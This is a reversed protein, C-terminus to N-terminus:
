RYSRESFYARKHRRPPVWTPACAASVWPRVLPRVLRLGRLPRVLPACPPRVLCPPLHACLTQAGFPACPLSAPPRVLGPRLLACLAALCTPVCPEAVLPSCPVAAITARAPICKPRCLLRRGTGRERERGRGRAREREREARCGPSQGAGGSMPRVLGCPWQACLAAPGSPACPPLAEPRVLHCGRVALWDPRVLGWGQAGVPACLPPRVLQPCGTACLPRVLACM